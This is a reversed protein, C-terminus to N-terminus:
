AALPSRCLSLNAIQYGVLHQWYQLRPDLMPTTPGNVALYRVGARALMEVLETHLLYRSARNISGSAQLLAWERDITMQTLAVPRGTADFAAWWVDGPQSFLCETWGLMYAVRSQLQEVVGRRESVDALPRCVIGAARAKRINTRVAQRHRGRLYRGEENPVALVGQALRTHPVGWIRHSMHARIRRGAPSDSLTVRLSPLHSLLLITAMTGNLLSGEASRVGSVEIPM